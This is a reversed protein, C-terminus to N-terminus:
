YQWNLHTKTWSCNRLLRDTAWINQEAQTLGFIPSSSVWESLDVLSVAMIIVNNRRNYHDTPIYGNFFYAKSVEAIAKNRQRGKM